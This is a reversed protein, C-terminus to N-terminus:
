RMEFGPRLAPLTENMTTRNLEFIAFGEIGNQRVVRMQDVARVPDLRSETATVGIGPFVRGRIGPLHQQERTWATFRELDPTYNMPCVFDVYGKELWLRWDQGVSPVCSPYKGYVAASLLVRPRISKILAKIDRVLRTIQECRWQQYDGKLRGRSVDAPWGDVPRGIAQEFAARCKRCFCVQSNQYRIYDLHIGDVEYNQLIERVTDKELRANDPQSPCLWPITKGDAAVQLRGARRLSDVFAAPAGELRWCVKWAHLRMGQGHAARIADRLPDGDVARPLIDSPYNAYGGWMVCPLLDTIGMRALERCTRDWDGPYLGFPADEWMGRFRDGRPPQAMGYAEQLAGHAARQGALAEIYQGAQVAAYARDRSFLARGLAADVRRRRDSPTMATIKRAADDVSVFTGMRGLEAQGHQAAQRWAAPDLAGIMALLFQKKNETDGDDLLIHTVWFGAQTQVVAPCSSNRGDANAWMALTRGQGDAPRVPRIVRSSQYVMAPLGPLANQDFRMASWPALDGGNLGRELQLGMFAAVSPDAGYFVILKGGRRVFQQLVRKMIGGPNPNYSLIMVRVGSLADDSLGTDTMADFPIGLEGLWRGMRRAVNAAYEREAEPVSVTGQVVAVPQAALGSEVSAIAAFTLLMAMARKLASSPNRRSQAACIVRM